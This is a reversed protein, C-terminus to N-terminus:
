QLLHRSEQVQRTCEQMKSASWQFVFNISFSIIINNYTKQMIINYGPVSSRRCYYPEQDIYDPSLRTHWGSKGGFSAVVHIVIVFEPKLGTEPQARGRPEFTVYATYFASCIRASSCQRHRFGM